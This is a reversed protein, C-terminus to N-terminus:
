TEGKGKRSNNTNRSNLELSGLKKNIIKKKRENM